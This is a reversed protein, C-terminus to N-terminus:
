WEYDNVTLLSHVMLDWKTHTLIVMFGYLGYFFVCEFWEEQLIYVM